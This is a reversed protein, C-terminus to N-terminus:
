PTLGFLETATPLGPLAGHQQVSYAGAICAVRAADSPNEGRAIAVAFAANFADGAGTTDAVSEVHPARVFEWGAKTAVLAGESGLTIVVCSAGNELLKEVSLLHDEQVGTISSAETINPTIFDCLQLIERTITEKPAPAPNLITTVEHKKALVLARHATELPIELSILCVRSNAITSEFADVDAPRLRDLAGSVIAIRNEGSQDVIILGTMTSMDEVHVVKEFHVNEKEWLRLAAEGYPDNGIATLLHVNGGLRAAGVAQNSGKGGHDIRFFNAQVTEGAKPVFDMQFTLGSGYGGIVSIMPGNKPTESQTVRQAYQDM